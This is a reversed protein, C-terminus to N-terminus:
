SSEEMRKLLMGGLAMLKYLPQSGPSWSIWPRHDQSAGAFFTKAKWAPFISPMEPEVRSADRLSQWTHAPDLLLVLDDETISACIKETTQLSCPMGAYVFKNKRLFRILPNFLSVADRRGFVFIRQASSIAQALQEFQDRSMGVAEPDIDHMFEIPYRVEELEKQLARIFDTFGAFGCQQCFRIISSKSLGTSLMINKIGANELRDTHNIFYEALLGESNELSADALTELKELLLM